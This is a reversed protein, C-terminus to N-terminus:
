GSYYYRPIRPLGKKIQEQNYTEITKMHNNYQINEDNNWTSKINLGSVITLAIQVNEPFDM